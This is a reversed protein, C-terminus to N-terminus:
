SPNENYCDKFGENEAVKNWERTIGLNETLAEPASALTEWQGNRVFTSKRAVHINKNETTKM